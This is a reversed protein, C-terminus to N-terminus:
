RQDFLRPFLCISPPWSYQDLRTNSSGSYNRVSICLTLSLSLSLSLMRCMRTISRDRANVRRSRALLTRVTEERSLLVSNVPAHFREHVTNACVRTIRRCFDQRRICRTITSRRTCDRDVEAWVSKRRRNISAERVWVRDRRELPSPDQVRKKENRSALAVM